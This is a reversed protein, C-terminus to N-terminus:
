ITEKNHNFIIYKDDNYETVSDLIIRDITYNIVTFDFNSYKINLIIDDATGVKCFCLPVALVFGLESRTGPQISRMWVPLFDGKTLGISNITDRWISVSSPYYTHYNISLTSNLYTNNLELPDIMTVYVVEYEPKSTGIPMAIAKSVGDFRFQKTKTHNNLARAFTSAHKREIGAYILMELNSQVGFNSDSPRYISDLTFINPDNIFSSWLQRQLLTLFPKVYANSRLISNPTGVNVIFTREIASYIYQDTALINFAYDHDITTINDDFTTEQDLINNLEDRFMTRGGINFTTETNTVPDYDFSLTGIDIFKHKNFTVNGFTTLLDDFTTDITPQFDFTILGPTLADQKFTTRNYDFRTDDQDFSILTTYNNVLGIIEGTLSLSLGPPLQGSTLKYMIQSNLITSTAHVALTSKYEANITGLDIDTDWSLISNIESIIKITFTQTSSAISSTTDSYRYATIKFKYDESPNSQYPVYGFVESSRQDFIMGPPLGYKQWNDTTFETTSTHAATCIYSLKSNVYILDNVQYSHLSQWLTTTTEFKYFILDIDYVDLVLTLYNNARYTGLDSPTLWVPNKLYSVDTTFLGTDSLLATTDARFFTSGVIYIRFARRDYYQIGDSVTVVFEFIRNLTKLPKPESQYDYILDYDYYEYGGNDIYGTTPQYYGFDYQGVGNYDYLGNDYTGLGDDIKVETVSQVRGFIRGTTTLTLGPPLQGDKSSIFYSLVAGADIDPDTAELQYDVVSNDMVFYQQHTGVQLLGHPTLFLPADEGQITINFTRDAIETASKARICFTYITDHLVEYPSGIITDDVIRMGGPLKGSIVTYTVGALHDVPLPLSINTREQFIGFSYGSPKNWVNLAM